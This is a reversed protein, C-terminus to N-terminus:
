IHQQAHTSYKLRYYTLAEDELVAYIRIVFGMTMASADCYFTLQETSHTKVYYAEETREWRSIPEAAYLYPDECDGMLIEKVLIGRSM